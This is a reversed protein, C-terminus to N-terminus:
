LTGGFDRIISLQLSHAPQGRGTWFVNAVGRFRLRGIRYNLESTLAHDLVLSNGEGASPSSPSAVLRYEVRGVLRPVKWLRQNVYTMALFGTGIWATDQQAESEKNAQRIFDVSGSLSFTEHWSLPRNANVTSRVSQSWSAGIGSTRRDDAALSSTLPTGGFASGSWTYMGSTTLSTTDGALQGSLTTRSLSQSLSLTRQGADGEPAISRSLAHQATVALSGTAGGDSTKSVSAGGGGGWSYFFDGLGTGVSSYSLATNASQGFRRLGGGTNLFAQYGYSSQFRASLPHNVSVSGVYTENSLHSAGVSNTFLTASLMGGVTMLSDVDAPLWSYSSTVQSFDSGRTENNTASDKIGTHNLSTDFRFGNWEEMNITHTAVLQRTTLSTVLGDANRRNFGVSSGSANFTQPMETRLTPSYTLQRNQTVTLDGQTSSFTTRGLQGSLAYSNDEPRYSQDITIGRMTSGSTDGGQASESDGGSLAIRTPWRSQGFLSLFGSGNLSNATGKQESSVQSRTFFMSGGVEAIYPAIIFSDGGLNLTERFASSGTTRLYDLGLSGSWRIPARQYGLWGESDDRRREAEAVTQADQVESVSGTQANTGAGGQTAVPAAGAKGPEGAPVVPVIASDSLADDVEGGGGLVAAGAAGPLLALCFAAALLEALPLLRTKLAPPCLGPLVTM